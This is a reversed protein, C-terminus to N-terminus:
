ELSLYEAHSTKINVGHNKADAIKQNKDQEDLVAQKAQYEEWQQQKSIKLGNIIGQDIYKGTIQGTQDISLGGVYGSYGNFVKEIRESSLLSNAVWDIGEPTNLIEKDIDILVPAFTGNVIEKLEPSSITFRPMLQMQNTRSNFVQQYTQNGMRDVIPMIDISTGDRRQLTQFKAINSQNNEIPLQEQQKEKKGFLKDLVGM